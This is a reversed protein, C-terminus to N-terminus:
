QEGAVMGARAQLRDRVQRQLRDLGETFAPDKAVRDYLGSTFV